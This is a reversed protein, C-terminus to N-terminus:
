AAGKKAAARAAARALRRQREGPYNYYRARDWAKRDWGPGAHPARKRERAAHLQRAEYDTRRPKIKKRQVNLWSSEWDVGDHDGQAEAFLELIGRHLDKM